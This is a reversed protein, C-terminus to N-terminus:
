GIRSAKLLKILDKKMKSPDPSEPYRLVLNGLPDLVWIHDEPLSGDATEFGANAMADKPTRIVMLGQHQALLDASPQADPPVIWAREVREREKGTTIRLQRILYLREECKADCTADSGTLLVWRGRLAQLDAPSGDLAEGSVQGAERLPLLLTGYNTRGEPRIVYYTFYSAIVPAACVLLVAILMLRGRRPTRGAAPRGAEPRGSGGGTRGQQGESPRGKEEISMSTSM